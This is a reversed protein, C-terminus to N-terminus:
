SALQFIIHIVASSDVPSGERRAPKFHIQRAAAAATEDLGHGLGRVVRLVRVEGSAEFLVELLVEGEISRRRAEDTYAPRPKDLIEVPLFAATSTTHRVSASAVAVAADGFGASATSRPKETSKTEVLSSGFGGTSRLAAKALPAAESITGSFTGTKIPPPPANPLEPVPLPSPTPAAEAIKPPVALTPVEVPKAVPRPAPAPVEFRRVPSQIRPAPQRPPIAAPRYPRLPRVPVLLTFHTPAPRLAPVTSSFSISFLLAIAAAHVTISAGFSRLPKLM